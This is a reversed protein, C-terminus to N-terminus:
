VEMFDIEPYKYLLMKKKLLYDKTRFGKTDVVVVLGSKYTVRFDARYKIPRVWLGDRNRYGSQLEFEPQLDIKIVEGARKLLLLERYYHAEKKSDFLIGDVTVKQSHYKSAKACSLRTM